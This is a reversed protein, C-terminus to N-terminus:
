KTRIVWHLCTDNFIVNKRKFNFTLIIEKRSQFSLTRGTLLRFHFFIKIEILSMMDDNTDVRMDEKEREIKHLYDILLRHDSAFCVNFFVSLSRPRSINKTKKKSDDRFKNTTKKKSSTFKQKFTLKLSGISTKIM